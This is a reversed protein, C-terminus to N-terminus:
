ESGILEISYLMFKGGEFPTYVIKRKTIEPLQLPDKIKKTVREQEPQQEPCYKQEQAHGERVRQGQLERVKKDIKLRMILYDENIALKQAGQQFPALNKFQEQLNQLDKDKQIEKIEILEREEEEDCFPQDKEIVETPAEPKDFMTATKNKEIKHNLIKFTLMQKNESVKFQVLISKESPEFKYLRSYDNVGSETNNAFYRLRAGFTGYDANKTSLALSIVPITLNDNYLQYEIMSNQFDEIHDIGFYLLTENYVIEPQLTKILASSNPFNREFSLCQFGRYNTKPQINNGHQNWERQDFLDYTFQKANTSMASLAIIVALMSITM